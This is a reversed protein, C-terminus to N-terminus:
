RRRRSSQESPMKRSARERVRGGADLGRVYHPKGHTRDDLLAALAHRLLLVALQKALSAVLAAVLLLEECAAVVGLAQGGPRADEEPVPHRADHGGASHIGHGGERDDGFGVTVQAVDCALDDVDHDGVAVLIGDVTSSSDIRSSGASYARPPLLDGDHEDVIAQVGVPAEVRRPQARRQIGRRLIGRRLIGRRAGERFSGAHDAVDDGPLQASSGSSRAACAAFTEASRPASRSTTGEIPSRDIPGSTTPPPLQSTARTASKASRAAEVRILRVGVVLRHGAVDTRDDGVADGDVELDSRRGRGRLSDDPAVRALVPVPDISVRVVDDYTVAEGVPHQLTIM